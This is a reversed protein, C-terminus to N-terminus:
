PGAHRRRHAAGRLPVSRSESWCEITAAMGGAGRTTALSTGLRTSSGSSNRLDVLSFIQIPVSAVSLEEYAVELWDFPEFSAALVVVGYYHQVSAPRLLLQSGFDSQLVVEGQRLLSVRRNIQGVAESIKERLWGVDAARPVTRSKVEFLVVVDDRVVLVDSLEVRRHHPELFTWANLFRPALLRDYLLRNARMGPALDPYESRSTGVEGM